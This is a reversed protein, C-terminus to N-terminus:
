ELAKKYGWEPFFTNMFEFFAKKTFYSGCLFQTEGYEKAIFDLTAIYLRYLKNKGVCNLDYKQELIVLVAICELAEDSFTLGAPLLEMLGGDEYILNDFEQEAKSDLLEVIKVM